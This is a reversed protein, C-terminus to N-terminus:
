TSQVMNGLRWSGGSLSLPWCVAQCLDDRTVAIYFTPPSEWFVRWRLPLVRPSNLLGPSQPHVPGHYVDFTLFIKPRGGALSFSLTNSSRYTWASCMVICSFWIEGPVWGRQPM